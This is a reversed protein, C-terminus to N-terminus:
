WSTWFPLGSPTSGSCPPRSGRSCPPRGWRRPSPLLRPRLAFAAGVAVALGTLPAWLAPRGDAQFFLLIGLGFAVAIWPFPSRREIELALWSAVPPRWSLAPWAIGLPRAGFRGAVAVVASRTRETPGHGTRQGMARPRGAGMDLGRRVSAGEGDM